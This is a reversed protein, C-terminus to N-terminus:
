LSGFGATELAQSQDPLVPHLWRRTCRFVFAARHWRAEEGSGAGLEPCWHSDEWPQKGKQLQCGSTRELIAPAWSSRHFGACVLWTVRPRRDWSTLAVWGM